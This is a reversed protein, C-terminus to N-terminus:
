SFKKSKKRRRDRVVKGGIVQISTDQNEKEGNDIEEVLNLASARELLAEIEAASMRFSNTLSIAWSGSSPHM